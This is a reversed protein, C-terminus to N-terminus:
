AAVAQTSRMETVPKHGITAAFTNGASQGDARVTIAVPVLDRMRDLLTRSKPVIITELKEGVLVVAQKREVLTRWVIEDAGEQDEAVFTARSPFGLADDDTMGRMILEHTRRELETETHILDGM